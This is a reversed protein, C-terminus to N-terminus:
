DKKDENPFLRETGFNMHERFWPRAYMLYFVARVRRPDLNSTGRHCIRYDYLLLDGRQPLPNVLMSSSTASKAGTNKAALKDNFPESVYAIQEMAKEETQRHSFALFETPGTEITADELPIFVNVAYTPLSAISDNSPFLPMGDQHWPQDASGPFSFIWGAYVLRPRLEAADGGFLLNSVISNLLSHNNWFALEESGNFRVDMRGQCRIALEYFRVTEHNNASENWSLGRKELAKCVKERCDRAEQALQDLLLGDIADRILALGCLKVTSSVEEAFAEEPDGKERELTLQKKILPAESQSKRRELVRETPPPQPALNCTNPRKEHRPATSAKSGTERAAFLNGDDGSLPESDDGFIARSLSM